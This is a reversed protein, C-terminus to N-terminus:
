FLRFGLILLILILLPQHLLYITLSNRGLFDLFRTILNNSFDKIKFSRKGNKYFTNGFYMGLLAFGFWPLVPFYDFTFFNSPTFGLWLLYPFDFRFGQLYFGLIIILLGLFLNLRRYKLFFQGFMVSFAILNIIGFIIFAEPFTLYTIVTILLAIGFLKLGRLFFKKYIEKPKRNKIRNYSITLSLGALFIFVPAALGPFMMGEKFNYVKLYFLAFSWNFIVMRIIALGRAFDIEWFREKIM